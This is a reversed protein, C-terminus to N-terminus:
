DFPNHLQCEPESLLINVEMVGWNGRVDVNLYASPKMDRYQLAFNSNLM